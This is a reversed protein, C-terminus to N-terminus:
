ISSRTDGQELFQSSGVHYYNWLKLRIWTYKVSTFRVSTISGMALSNILLTQKLNWLTSRRLDDLHLPLVLCHFSAMPHMEYPVAWFNRCISVFTLYTIFFRSNWESEPWMDGDEFTSGYRCVGYSIRNMCSMETSLNSEMWFWIWVPDLFPKTILCSNM